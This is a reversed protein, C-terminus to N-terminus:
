PFPLPRLTFRAVQATTALAGTFGPEPALHHLRWNAVASPDGDVGVLRAPEDPRFSVNVRRLEHALGEGTAKLWAEKRTWLNFFAVSKQDDPLAQFSTNERTSFFRAVLQDAHPMQRIREVDVGVPGTRSVAVLALGASHALNFQLSTEPTPTALAPKGRAGYAFALTAPESGLYRSLIVRLQGRAASFRRQDRELHFRSAREREDPALTSSAQTLALPPLDLLCSWVHVEEPALSWEM